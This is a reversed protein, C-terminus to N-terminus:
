SHFIRIYISWRVMVMLSDLQSRHLAADSGRLWASQMQVGAVSWVLHWRWRQHHQWHCGKALELPQNRPREPVPFTVVGKSSSWSIDHSHNYLSLITANWGYEWCREVLGFIWSLERRPWPASIWLLRLHECELPGVLFIRWTSRYVRWFNHPHSPVYLWGFFLHSCLDALSCM